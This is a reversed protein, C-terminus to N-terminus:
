EETYIELKVLKAHFNYIYLPHNLNFTVKKARQLDLKQSLNLNFANQPESEKERMIIRNTEERHEQGQCWIGQKRFYSHRYLNDKLTRQFYNLVYSESM